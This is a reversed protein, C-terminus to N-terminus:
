GDLRWIQRTGTVSWSFFLKSGDPAVMGASPARIDLMNQIRRSIRSDLPKPAFEALREKSISEAGLGSYTRGSAAPRADVPAPPHATASLSPFAPTPAPKGTHEPGCSAMAAFLAISRWAKM